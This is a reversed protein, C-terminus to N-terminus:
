KNEGRDIKNTDTQETVHFEVRRNAQRGEETDNPKIPKEEGYGHSELRNQEVGHQSLWTSVSSARAQSLKMNFDADGRDDTHGEISMKKIDRQGEPLERDGPADPLQGAPHDGVRDRLAGAPARLGQRGEVDIMTPCGNHKPDPNKKGPVKPCADERGAVGDQDADEEPCGDGDDIGDKDEPIDPCHDYQDPIGDGDRDPPM